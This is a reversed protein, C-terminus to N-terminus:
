SSRQTFKVNSKRRMFNTLFQEARGRTTFVLTPAYKGYINKASICFKNEFPEIKYKM